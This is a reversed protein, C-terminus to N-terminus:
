PEDGVLMNPRHDADTKIKLILRLITNMEINLFKELLRLVANEIKDRINKGRGVCTLFEKGERSGTGGKLRSAM